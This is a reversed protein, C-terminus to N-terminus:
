TQATQYERRYTVDICLQEIEDDFDDTSDEVADISVMSATVPEESTDCEPIRLHLEFVVRRGENVERLAAELVRAEMELPLLQGLGPGLEDLQHAEVGDDEHLLQAVANFVKDTVFRVCARVCM